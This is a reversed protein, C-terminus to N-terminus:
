VTQQVQVQQYKQYSRYVERFYGGKRSKAGMLVAGAVNANIDKLERLIRLAAGRRTVAANLVVLAADAQAALTKADSVLMAPGDIIIYDFQSRCYDLLTKMRESTFLEAPNAPLPGSDILYLGTIGSDRIIRDESCQGMLYNSLGFDSFGSSGNAQSRPFLRATSPRRFNADLLLVRRGEMLLTSALNVAVTTKGDGAQGSTVCLVKHMAGGPGLLRLNTRLQRYGESMMSYPAQRVVHYLDVGEAEDDDSVHWIMGMLPVRLHRVVDSPTRVLDNALEILFALGLGALLGLIFGGPFFLEWRPFSKERPDTAGYPSSLKSLRPNDHQANKKEILTNMDELLKQNEERQQEYRAYEARIRDIEKYEARAANLQQTATELQSTLATMTDRANILNSQRILEGIMKQRADYEDYMKKLAAQTQKVLRHEDGFRARQQDLLPEMAAINSRMQRAIPDNEVEQRVVEDFDYAKARVDLTAIISELRSKESDYESYRNELDALKEDMYDRFSQNEGLNLRAFRTGSRISELSAEIQNLKTQIQDRQNKLQALEQKLTSQALEQQQRMFIRVMEDVITKADRANRCKMSVLLYNNDRPATASLNDQLDKLAERIAKEVDGVIQGQSDIKAFSKFWDTERVRPQELLTLLMNQQQIMSAKTFRFAYYLDKQVQISAIQMPDMDVPPDVDIARVSTYRPYYRDCLYWLGGGIVTGLITMLIIMWLHRRLIGLIERPTLEMGGGAGGAPRAPGQPPTMPPRSSAPGTMMNITRQIANDM